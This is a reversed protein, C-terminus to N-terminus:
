LELDCGAVDALGDRVIDFFLQWHGRMHLLMGSVHYSGDGNDVCRPQHLMGHGHDPMWGRVFLEAGPVPQGDALLWVEVDFTQNRPVGDGTPRWCLVYTGARSELREFSAEEWPAQAARPAELPSTTAPERTHPTGRCGAGLVTGLLLLLTCVPSSPM